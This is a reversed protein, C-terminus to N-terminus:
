EEEETVFQQNFQFQRRQEEAAVAERHDDVDPRMLMVGDSMQLVCFFTFIICVVGILVGINAKLIDGMSKQNQAALKHANAETKRMKTNSDKIPSLDAQMTAPRQQFIKKQSLFTLIPESTYMRYYGKELSGYMARSQHPLMAVNNMWLKMCEEAHWSKSSDAHQSLYGENYAADWMKGAVMFWAIAAWLAIGAFSVNVYFITKADPYANTAEVFLSTPLAVFLALFFGIWLPWWFLMFWVFWEPRADHFAKRHRRYRRIVAKYQLAAGIKDNLTPTLDAQAERIM